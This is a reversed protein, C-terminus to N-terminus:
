HKSAGFESDSLTTGIFVNLTRRHSCAAPKVKNGATREDDVGRSLGTLSADAGVPTDSISAGV